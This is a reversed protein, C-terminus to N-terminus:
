RKKRPHYGLDILLGAEQATVVESATARKVDEVTWQRNGGPAGNFEGGSRAPVPQREARPPALKYQTNAEAAAKIREGLMEAFDGAEPDLGNVKALFSVSDMLLAGNAGLSPAQTLVALRIDRERIASDKASLAETHQSRTRELEEALKAPDPPVESPKIGLAVALADRQQEQDAKFQALADSVEKAKARNGAAEARTDRLLKQAWPPLQDVSAAEAQPPEQGNAPPEGSAGAPPPPPEPAPPPTGTAAPDAPSPPPPTAAPETAPESGGAILHIPTGNRRYGIIAGPTAPLITRM